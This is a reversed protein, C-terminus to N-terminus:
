AGPRADAGPRRRGRRRRRTRDDAGALKRAKTSTVFPAYRVKLTVRFVPRGEKVTDDFAQSALERM